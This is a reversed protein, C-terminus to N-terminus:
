EVLDPMVFWKPVGGLAIIDYFCVKRHVSSKNMNMITEPTLQVTLVDGHAFVDWANGKSKLQIREYNPGYTCGVERQVLWLSSDTLGNVASPPCLGKIM